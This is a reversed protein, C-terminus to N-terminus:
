VPLAGHTVDMVFIPTPVCGVLKFFDDMAM